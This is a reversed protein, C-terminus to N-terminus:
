DGGPLLAGIEQWTQLARFATPGGRFVQWAFSVAVRTREPWTASEAASREAVVVRVALRELASRVGEAGVIRAHTVAWIAATLHDNLATRLEEALEADEAVERRAEELRTVVDDRAEEPPLAGESAVRSLFSSLTGLAVLADGNVMGSSGPNGSATHDRRSAFITEAWRDVHHNFTNVIGPDDTGVVAREFQDLLQAVTALERLVAAEDVELVEAWTAKISKNKRAVADFQALIAHLRAAPNDPIVM